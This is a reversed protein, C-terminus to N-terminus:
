PGMPLTVTFVVGGGPNAMADITGGHEHVISRCVSLGIGMGDKKSTNFPEFLKAAIAPDLGPGNDAVSVSIM